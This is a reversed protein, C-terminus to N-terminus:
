ESISEVFPYYDTKMIGAVPNNVNSELSADKGPVCPTNSTLLARNYDIVPSYKAMYETVVKECLTSCTNEIHCGVTDAFLNNSYEIEGRSAKIDYIEAEEVESIFMGTAFGHLNYRKMFTSAHCWIFISDKKSRLAEVNSEGIIYGGNLSFLGTPSGHGLMIVQDHVEILDNILKCPLKHTVVTGVVGWYIAKLFDTSRDDMHIILRTKM